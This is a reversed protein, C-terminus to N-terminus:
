GGSSPQFVKRNSVDKVENVASKRLETPDFESEEMKCGVRAVVFDACTHELCTLLGEYSVFFNPKPNPEGLTAPSTVTRCNTLLGPHQNPDLLCILDETGLFAPINFSDLMKKSVIWSPLSKAMWELTELLIERWIPVDINQTRDAVERKSESMCAVYSEMMIALLINVLLFFILVLSLLYFVAAYISNVAILPAYGHRGVVMMHLTEISSWLDAWEDLRNGFTMMGMVGFCTLTVTWIVLFKLLHGSAHQITKVLIGYSKTNGMFELGEEVALETDARTDTAEEDEAPLLLWTHRLGCSHLCRQETIVEM